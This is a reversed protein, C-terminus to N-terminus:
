CNRRWPAAALAAGPEQDQSSIWMSLITMPLLFYEEHDRRGQSASCIVEAGNSSVTTASSMGSVSAFMRLNEGEPLTGASRSSLRVTQSESAMQSYRCSFNGLLCRQGLSTDCRACARDMLASICEPNMFRRLSQEIFITWCYGYLFSRGSVCFSTSRMTEMKASHRRRLPPGNRKPARGQM